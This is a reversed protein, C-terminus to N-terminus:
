QNARIAKIDELDVKRGLIKKYTILDEKRIVPVNIGYLEKMEVKSFDTTSSKWEGNSHDHIRVNDGCIDIEQEKYKLTVLILDWNDDTFRGPGWIVYDKVDAVIEKIRDEPIDIDVDALPRDSGYVRAILGGTIQFQIKHKELIGVIWKLAEETNKMSKRGMVNRISRVAEALAPTM